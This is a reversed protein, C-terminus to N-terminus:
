LYIKKESKYEQSCIPCKKAKMEKACDECLCVHNCPELLISKATNLCICCEMERSLQKDTLTLCDKLESSDAKEPDCVIDLNLELNRNEKEAIGKFIELFNYLRHSIKISKGDKISVYYFKQEKSRKIKLKIDSPNVVLLEEQKESVYFSNEIDEKSYFYTIKTKKYNLNVGNQKAQVLFFNFDPLFRELIKFIVEDDYYIDFFEEGSYKQEKQVVAKGKVSMIKNPNLSLDTASLFACHFFLITFILNIIKTM